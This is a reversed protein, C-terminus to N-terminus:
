NVESEDDESECDPCPDYGIEQDCIACVIAIFSPDALDEETYEFDSSM